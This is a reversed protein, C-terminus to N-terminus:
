GDVQVDMPMLDPRRVLWNSAKKQDKVCPLNGPMVNMLTGNDRVEEKM